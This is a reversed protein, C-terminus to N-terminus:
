FWLRLNPLLTFYGMTKRKPPHKRAHQKLTRGLPELEEPIDLGLARTVALTMTRAQSSEYPKARTVPSVYLLGFAVVRSPM